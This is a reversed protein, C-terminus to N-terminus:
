TAADDVPAFVGWSLDVQNNALEFTDFAADFAGYSAGFDYAPDFLCEDHLAPDLAIESLASTASLLCRPEVSEAAVRPREYRHNRRRPTSDPFPFAWVFPLSFRM